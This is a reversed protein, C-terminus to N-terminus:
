PWTVHGGHSPKSLLIQKLMQPGEIEPQRIKRSTRASLELLVASTGTESDTVPNAELTMATQTLARGNLSAGTRLHIAKAALVNGEIHAATGIEVGAGGAVQWFINRAQAGGSISVNAGSGMTLDGAIQFIWVSNAPGDLTLTSNILVGTTWKYLGPALTRGSLDGTYLETADPLSRGAADTFATEMDSVAATMISPTPVAYDAAYVEGVVLSSTSFQGSSHMILGFGTIASSDIPSVGIDGTISTTGTSSIGSKALIVFGGASGLDVPAQAAAADQRVFLVAVAFGLIIRRFTLTKGSHVTKNKM